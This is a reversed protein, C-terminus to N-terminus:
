VIVQLFIASGLINFCKRSNRPQGKEEAQLAKLITSHQVEMRWGTVNYASSGLKLNIFDCVASDMYVVVRCM